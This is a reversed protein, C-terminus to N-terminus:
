LGCEQKVGEIARSQSIFEGTGLTELGENLVAARLFKAGQFVAQAVTRITNPFAMTRVCDLGEFITAMDRDFTVGHM